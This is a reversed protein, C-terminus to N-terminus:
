KQWSLRRSGTSDRHAPSHWITRESKDTAILASAVNAAAMILVEQLTFGHSTIKWMLAERVKSVVAQWDDGRERAHGALAWTRGDVRTPLDAPVLGSIRTNQHTLVAERGYLLKPEYCV